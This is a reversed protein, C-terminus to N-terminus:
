NIPDFYPKMNEVFKETTFGSWQALIKGDPDVLVYTPFLRIGYNKSAGDALSKGDSLNPWAFPKKHKYMELWGDHNDSFMVGVISLKDSYKANYKALEVFGAHCRPCNATWFNVLLYKGDKGVYDSLYTYGGSVDHLEMDILPGGIKAVKVASTEPEQAFANQLSPLALMMAVAAAILIKKM